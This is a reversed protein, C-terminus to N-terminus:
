KLKNMLINCLNEIESFTNFSHLCIRLREQGKAVTPSLIPIVGFGEKQIEESILKVFDNGSLIISQIASKSPIFKSNLGLEEVKKLFFVINKQLLKGNQTRSLEQHGALIHAVSHPPMATTYIFSRAFNVLYQKVENSSLVGAGHGGLAKGYTMIRVFVRNELGLHQVLGCGNKGLVGLAHAEDVILFANYKEALLVMKELNPSDGDMSFVSETAIFISNSLNTYRQLLRELDELNNHKFKYAQALSLSIGDRISAHIYEDFLIIDGRKPISSFVGVNADYGSNFLLCSHSHCFESITNEAIEHLPTHGSILRSGTAGHQLPYKSLIEQTLQKIEISSAFGLYDNSYFDVEFHNVKLTRLANKEKRQNLKETIHKPIRTM